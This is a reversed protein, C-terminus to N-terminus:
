HSKVGAAVAAVDERKVSLKNLRHWQAAHEEKCERFQALIGRPALSERVSKEWAAVAESHEASFDCVCLIAKVSGSIVAEKEIHVADCGLVEGLRVAVVADERFRALDPEFFLIYNRKNAM